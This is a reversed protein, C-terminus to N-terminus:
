DSELEFDISDHELSIQLLPSVKETSPYNDLINNKNEIRKGVNDWNSDDIKCQWFIKNGRYIKDITYQSKIIKDYGKMKTM